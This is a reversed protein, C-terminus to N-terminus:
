FPFDAAARAGSVPGHPARNPESVSIERFTSETNLFADVIDPDFHSGSESVITALSAEHSFAKKYPRDSRLADYVDAIAMIRATLPITKGRLGHPYGSGDWREHHYEAIERAFMLSSDGRLHRMTEVIAGVGLMTHTEMVKKEEPDLNGQKLLISDPIGIKGIDHLMSASAVVEIGQSSFPQEKRLAKLLVSVYARTRRLHDGTERERFRAVVVLANLVEERTVRLEESRLKLQERIRIQQTVDQVMVMHTQGGAYENFPTITVNAYVIDGNPRIYRKKAITQQTKTENMQYLAYIDRAVDDLHTFRMWTQGIVHPVTRGLIACYADNAHVIKGSKSDIIAIGHPAKKFALSEQEAIPPMLKEEHFSDYATIRHTGTAVAERPFNKWSNSRLTKHM